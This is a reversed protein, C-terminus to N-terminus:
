EPLFSNSKTLLFQSSLISKGSSVSSSKGVPAQFFMGMERNPEMKKAINPLLLCFFISLAVRAGM